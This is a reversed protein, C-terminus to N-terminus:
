ERLIENSTAYNFKKKELALSIPPFNENAPFLEGNCFNILLFNEKALPFKSSNLLAIHQRFNKGGLLRYSKNKLNLNFFPDILV